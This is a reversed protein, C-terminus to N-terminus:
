CICLTLRRLHARVSNDCYSFSRIPTLIYHFVGVYIYNGERPQMGNMKLQWHSETVNYFKRSVSPSENEM